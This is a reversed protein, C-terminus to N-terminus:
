SRSLEKEIAVIAADALDYIKRKEEQLSSAPAFRAFECAELCEKLRTILDGPISQAELQRTVTDISLDARDIGLRDSVYSWLARSIEAYFAEPDAGSLLLKAQKLRKTAVKMAKRSRFMAVDSVERLNKQRYAALGVFALLPLMTMIVLTPTSVEDGGKKRFSGGNTKIFRIDQSLLKVDEKSIGTVTQVIEASGKEVTLDIANSHLSVYKGKSPDFYSFELPPIKKQGPYRPVLLWEFTKSGSINKASRDITETVKPDYREFENPIEVNPAELIKINGIGNIVAKLSLPENTKVSKSSVSANLTFQGVAGRFSAPVDGKPLPLVTVKVPPSKVNVNSTSFNNFFPDNFLQDFWDSSRKRNQMQVQCVIELPSIELNGAQTPFLATKKIIGVQYQKGNVVENSLSIQQPVTLEEGWFGTMAPLKNLPPISTIHVRTYVKFAVNIEEGLYVKSRDVIAKLFLNEGLQLENDAPQGASAQPKTKAAGKSVVMEIPQSSYQKGGAEISAAGITFKGAERPQLVYSYTASSSVTGNIFQMSTSHNPGSLILFKSLDPLSLNKGGGTGSGELAFQLTFQEDTAVSNKDVAATFTAQGLVTAPLAILIFLTISRVIRM